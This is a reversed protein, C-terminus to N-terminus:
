EGFRILVYSDTGPKDWIIEDVVAEDPNLTVSYGSGKADALEKYEDLFTEWGKPQLVKVINLISPYALDDLEGYEGLLITLDDVNGNAIMMLKGCNCANSIYNENLPEFDLSAEDMVMGDLEKMDYAEAIYISIKSTGAKEDNVTSFYKNELEKASLGAIYGNLLRPNMGYYDGVADLVQTAMMVGSFDDSPITLSLYDGEDVFTWSGNMYENGSISITFGDDALTEEYKTEPYYETYMAKTKSYDSDVATLADFIGKVTESPEAFVSHVSFLYLVVLFLIFKVSNKM